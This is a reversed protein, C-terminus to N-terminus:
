GKQGGSHVPHEVAGVYGLVHWSPQSIPSASFTIKYLLTDSKKELPEPAKIEQNAGLLFLGPAWCSIGWYSVMTLPPRGLITILKCLASVWGNM